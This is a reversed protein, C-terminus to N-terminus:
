HELFCEVFKTFRAGSNGYSEGNIKLVDPNSNERDAKLPIAKADSHVLHVGDFNLFDYVFL